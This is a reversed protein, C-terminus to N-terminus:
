VLQIYEYLGLPGAPAGVVSEPLDNSSLCQSRIGHRQPINHYLSIFEKDKEKYCREEKSIKKEKQHLPPQNTVLFYM